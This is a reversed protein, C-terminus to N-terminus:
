TGWNKMKTAIETRIRSVTSNSVKLRKAIETASIKERGNMGLTHEFVFRQQDDLEYPIYRLVEAERSPMLSVPDVNMPSAAYSKRQETQLRNVTKPHWGLHDSLEHVDPERGLRINLESFATNFEGIKNRRREEIRGVNQRNRIWRDGHQVKSTVWTGLSAGRNPDYTEFAKVTHKQFEAEIAPAPVEVTNQYKNVENQVLGRFNDL